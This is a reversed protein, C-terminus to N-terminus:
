CRECVPLGDLSMSDARCRLLRSTMSQEANPNTDITSPHLPPPFPHLVQQTTEITYSRVQAFGITDFSRLDRKVTTGARVRLLLCRRVLIPQIQADSVGSAEKTADRVASRYGTHRMRHDCSLWCMVEVDLVSM